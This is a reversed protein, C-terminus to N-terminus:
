VRTVDSTCSKNCDKCVYRKTFAGVLNNIVHCHKEEDDFLLNITKPADVQGEYIILDCKLDIYVIIKYRDQFYQQFSELEPIEGGRSLDVGTAKLLRYVEPHIKYGRRYSNYNPDNDVRAIAIILAHALCNTNANVHVISKKLHAL